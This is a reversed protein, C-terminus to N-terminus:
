SDKLVSYEIDVEKMFRNLSKQLFFAFLTRFPALFQGAGQGGFVYQSGLYELFTPIKSFTPVKTDDPRKPISTPVQTM